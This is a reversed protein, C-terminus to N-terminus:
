YRSGYLSHNARLIDSLRKKSKAPNLAGESDQDLEYGSDLLM